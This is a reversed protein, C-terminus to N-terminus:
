SPSSIGASHHHIELSTEKVSISTL